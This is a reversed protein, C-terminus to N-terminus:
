LRARLFFRALQGRRRARAPAAHGGPPAARHVHPLAPLPGATPAAGQLGAGHSAPDSDAVPPRGPAHPAQGACRGRHLRRKPCPPRRAGIGNGLRAPGRTQSTHRLSPHAGLIKPPPAMRACALAVRPAAGHRLSMAPRTPIGQPGPIGCTWPRMRWAWPTCPRAAAPMARPSDGGGHVDPRAHCASSRLNFISFIPM